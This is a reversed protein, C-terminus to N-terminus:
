NTTKKMNEHKWVLKWAKIRKANIVSAIFLHKSNSAFFNSQFRVLIEESICFFQIVGGRSSKSHQMQTNM